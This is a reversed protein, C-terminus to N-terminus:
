GQASPQTVYNARLREGDATLIETSVGSGFATYGFFDSDPNALSQIETSVGSGFATYRHRDDQAAGLVRGIETSVGSGFATYRVISYKTGNKLM